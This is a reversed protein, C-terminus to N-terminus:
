IKHFFAAHVIDPGSGVEHDLPFIAGPRLLLEVDLRLAHDRGCIRRLADRDPTRHLARVIDVFCEQPKEVQWRFLQADDLRFGAASEAALFFIGRHDRAM